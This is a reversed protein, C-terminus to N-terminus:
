FIQIKHKAYTFYFSTGEGQSNLFVVYTRKQDKFFIKSPCYAMCLLNIKRNTRQLYKVPNHAAKKVIFRKTLVRLIYKLQPLWVFLWILLCELYVNYLLAIYTRWIASLAIDPFLDQVFSRAFIICKSCNQIQHM